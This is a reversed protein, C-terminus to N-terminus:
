ISPDRKLHRTLPATQFDPMEIIQSFDTFCRHSDSKRIQLFDTFGILVTTQPVRCPPQSTNFSSYFIQSIDTDM